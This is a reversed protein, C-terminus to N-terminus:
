LLGGHAAGVRAPRVGQQTLRHRVHQRGAARAPSVGTRRPLRRRSAGRSAGGASWRMM